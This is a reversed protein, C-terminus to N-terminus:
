CEFVQRKRQFHYDGKGSKGYYGKSNSKKGKGKMDKGKVLFKRKAKGKPNGKHESGKGKAKGDYKGSGKRSSDNWEVSIWQLLM